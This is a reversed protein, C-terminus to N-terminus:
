KVWDIAIELLPPDIPDYIPGAAEWKFGVTLGNFAPTVQGPGLIVESSLQNSTTFHWLKFAYKSINTVNTIKYNSINWGGEHSVYTYYNNMATEPFTPHLLISKSRGSTPPEPMKDPSYYFANQWIFARQGAPPAGLFCNQDDFMGAKCGVKRPTFYFGNKWEFARTGAPANGLMCNVGDDIGQSCKDYPMYFYANKWVFGKKPKPGFYCNEGDFTGKNCIKGPLPTTYFGNRWEFARTGPPANDLLCNVGDDTGKSCADYSMYYYVNKWVFGKKPKPGLYCNNGDFFQVKVTGEPPPCDLEPKLYFSNNWIFGTTGDPFGMVLCNKGDFTAPLKSGDSSNWPACETVASAAPPLSLLAIAAVSLFTAAKIKGFRKM